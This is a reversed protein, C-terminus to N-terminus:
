RGFIAGIIQVSDGSALASIKPGVAGASTTPQATQDIGAKAKSVNSAPSTSVGGATPPKALNTLKEIQSNAFVVEKFKVTYTISDGSADSKTASASQILMNLYIRWATVVTLTKRNMSGTALELLKQFALKSRDETDNGWQSAEESWWAKGALANVQDSNSVFVSISFTAPNTFIHDTIEGGKEIPNATITNEISHDENLFIDSIIVPNMNLDDSFYIAVTSPKRKGM